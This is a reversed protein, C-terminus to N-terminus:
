RVSVNVEVDIRFRHGPAWFKAWGNANQPPGSFFFLFIRVTQKLQPIKEMHEALKAEKEKLSNKGTTARLKLQELKSTERQETARMLDM